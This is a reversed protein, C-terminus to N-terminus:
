LPIEYVTLEESIGKLLTKRPRASLHAQEFLRKVEPNLVVPETTFLSTATALDQV